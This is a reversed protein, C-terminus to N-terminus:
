TPELKPETRVPEAVKLLASQSVKRVSFRPYYNMLNTPSNLHTLIHFASSIIM